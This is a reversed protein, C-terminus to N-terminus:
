KSECQELLSKIKKRFPDEKIGVHKDVLAGNAYMYFTPTAKVNLVTKCLQKTSQNRNGYLILFLADKYHEAFLKYKPYFKKCPKCFTFGVELIIPGKEEQLLLQFEEMSKVENVEKRKWKKKDVIEVNSSLSKELMGFLSKLAGGGKKSDREAAENMEKEDMDIYKMIDAVEPLVNRALILFEQFNLGKSNMQAYKIVLFNLEKDSMEKVGSGESRLIQFLERLESVSIMGSGDKDLRKFAVEYNKLHAELLLKDNAFNIFERFDLMNDGNVDYKKIIKMTEEESMVHLAYCFSGNCELLSRVESAGLKGTRKSDAERFQDWLLDVNEADFDTSSLASDEGDYVGQNQYGATSSCAVAGRGHVLAAYSSSSSSPSSNSSPLINRRFRVRGNSEKGSNHGSSRKPLPSTKSRPLRAARRFGTTTAPTM